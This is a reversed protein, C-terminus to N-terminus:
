QSVGGVYGAIKWGGADKTYCMEDGGLPSLAQADIYGTKGSPTAVHLLFPQDPNTPQSSDPLVRILIMGLKEIVPSSSQAAAHVDVGGNTPYGWESPDTGTAEGLVQFAKADIGPAAPACVVGKQEPLEAATPENAYGNIVDWGSGDKADLNIAKALNDIGSKRKDALDRDQVWFFNQAVIMHALAARDKKAAVDALQKRFAVFGPDNYAAPPKVVVPQYPKIPPPPPPKLGGGPLNLGQQAVVPSALAVIVLVALSLGAAFLPPRM